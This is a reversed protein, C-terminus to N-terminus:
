PEPHDPKSPPHQIVIHGGDDRVVVATAGNEKSQMGFHNRAHDIASERTGGWVVSDIEVDDKYFTITHAMAGSEGDKSTLIYSGALSRLVPNSATM